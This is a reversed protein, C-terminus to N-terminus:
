DCIFDHMSTSDRDLISLDVYWPPLPNSRLVDSKLSAINNTLQSIRQRLSDLVKVDEQNLTSQAM